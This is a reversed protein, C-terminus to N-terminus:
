QLILPFDHGFVRVQWQQIVFQRIVFQVPDFSNMGIEGRGSGSEGFPFVRRVELFGQSVHEASFLVLKFGGQFQRTIAGPPKAFIVV